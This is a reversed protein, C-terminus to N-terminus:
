EVPKGFNVFEHVADFFHVHGGDGDGVVVGHEADDLEVFGRFGFAYFGDDTDFGLIPLSM